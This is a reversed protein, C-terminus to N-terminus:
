NIMIGFAVSLSFFIQSYAALWVQPVGLADLRPTFLQNLGVAAGDLDPGGLLLDRTAELRRAEGATGPRRRCPRDRSGRGGDGRLVAGPDAM